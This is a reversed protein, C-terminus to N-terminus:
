RVPGRRCMSLRAFRRVMSKAVWRAERRIVEDDDRTAVELAPLSAGGLAAVAAWDHQAICVHADLRARLRPDLPPASELLARAAAARVRAARDGLAAGLKARTPASSSLRGLVQIAAARLEADPSSLVAELLPAAEPETVQGLGALAAVLRPKLPHHPAPPPDGPRLLDPPQPAAAPSMSVALRQDPGRREPVWDHASYPAMLLRFPRGLAYALHMMWGEVTIVVDAYSAFYKFQRMVHDPGRLAPRESAHGPGVATTEGPDPAVTVRSRHARDLHQLVARIIAASGWTEGNPLLVVHFGEDVLSGIETALRAIKAVTFGKLPHRGGFSNVLAAPRRDAGALRRWVAHAEPSAAGVLMSGGRPVDQASRQPLGLEAVLRESVDYPNARDMRDVRLAHALSRDGVRVTEFTFGIPGTLARIVVRAGRAACAEVRHALDARISAEPVSRAHWDVIGDFRDGLARGVACADLISISSVRPHDYLYPRKSLVTVTLSPNGDLFAQILPIVRVIEDGQGGTVNHVALLAFSARRVAAATMPRTRFRSALWRDVRPRTAQPLGSREALGALVYRFRPRRGFARTIRDVTAAGLAGPRESILPEVVENLLLDLGPGDPTARAVRLAADLSVIRPHWRAHVALSKLLAIRCHSARWRQVLLAVLAQSAVPAVASGAFLSFARAAAETLAPPLPSSTMRTLAGVTSHSVLDPRTYLIAALAGLALMPPTEPHVAGLAAEVDAVTSASLQEPATLALCLIRGIDVDDGLRQTGDSSSPTAHRRHRGSGNPRPSTLAILPQSVSWATSPVAWADRAQPPRRRSRRAASAPGPSWAARSKTRPGTM